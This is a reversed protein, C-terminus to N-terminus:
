LEPEEFQLSFTCFSGAGSGWCQLSLLWFNEAAKSGKLNLLAGEPRM